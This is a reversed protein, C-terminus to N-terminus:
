MHRIRQSSMLARWRAADRVISKWDDDMNLPAVMLAVVRALHGLRARHRGPLVRCWRDPLGLPARQLLPLPAPVLCRCERPLLRHRVLCRFLFLLFEYGWWGSKGGCRQRETWGRWGTSRGSGGTTTSPGSM